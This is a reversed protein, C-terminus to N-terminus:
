LLGMQRKEHYSEPDRHRLEADERDVKDQAEQDLRRDEALDDEGEDYDFAENGEDDTPNVMAGGNLYRVREAAAATSNHDSEPQFKGSPDYFGVTWLGGFEHKETQIYVYM